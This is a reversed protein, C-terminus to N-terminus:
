SKEADRRWALFREITECLQKAEPPEFFVENQDNVCGGTYVVISGWENIKVYAGDGIYVPEPRKM